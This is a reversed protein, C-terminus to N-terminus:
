STLQEEFPNVTYPKKFFWKKSCCDLVVPAQIGLQKILEWDMSEGNSIHSQLRCTAKFAMKRICLDPPPFVLVECAVPPATKVCGAVGGM